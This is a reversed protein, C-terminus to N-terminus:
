SILWMLVSQWVFGYFFLFYNCKKVTSKKINVMDDNPNSFMNFKVARLLFVGFAIFLYVKLILSLYFPLAPVFLVLTLPVFKYGVYCLLETISTTPSNTSVLLYLGLKLIILDLALFAVTSSLKYYLNEPNFSGSLGQQTNWILIYTVLGMVPIYMDPSNIDDKPPMFSVTGAGSSQSEPIRQWNNKNMFPFLVLLIKQLVYSTSVQFYHSVSSSGSAAKSVTEQFQSFNQQGIFNSFASQGLQFAMSQRPDQFGYGEAGAGGNQQAGQSMDPGQQHNVFGGRGQFQQQQQQQQQQQFQANGAFGAGNAQSDNGGYGYPNYSM